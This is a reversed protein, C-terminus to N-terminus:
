SPGYRLRGPSRGPVGVEGLDPSGFDLILASCPRTRSRAPRQGHGGAAGGGHTGKSLCSEGEGHSSLLGMM